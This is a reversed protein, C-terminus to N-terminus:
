LLAAPLPIAHPLLSARLLPIALVAIPHLASAIATVVNRLVAESEGEPVLVPEPHVIAGGDVHPIRAKIVAAKRKQQQIGPWFVPWLIPILPIVNVNIIVIPVVKVVATIWVDPKRDSDCHLDL